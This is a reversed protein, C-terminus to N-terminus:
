TAASEVPAAVIELGEAGASEGLYLRKVQPDDLLEQGEGRLKIVGLEMVCGSRATGLGTRANQEVLLITLGQENLEKMKAMVVKSARPELGLTPEDLLLLRPMTVIARAMEVQKQEGGSLLGARKAAFKDVIPFLESAMRLRERTLARDSISYAGMLLNEHVTMQPFTSRGQPVHAIGRRFLVDPRLGGVDAGDFRISGRRPRLMGSLARLLTSKGAGNPGILCVFDGEALSLDVGRLIDGGSGYGACLGEIELLM